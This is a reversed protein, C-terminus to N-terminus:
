LRGGLDCVRSNWVGPWVVAYLVHAENFEDRLGIREVSLLNTEDSEQRNQRFAISNVYESFIEIVRNGPISNPYVSGCIPGDCIHDVGTTAQDCENRRHFPRVALISPASRSLM